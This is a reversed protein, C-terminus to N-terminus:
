ETHVRSCESLSHCSTCIISINELFNINYCFARTKGSCGCVDSVTHFPAHKSCVSPPRGAGTHCPHQFPRVEPCGLEDTGPCRRSGWRHGSDVWAGEWACGLGAAPCKKRRGARRCVDRHQLPGAGFGRHPAAEHLARPRQNRSDSSELCLESFFWSKPLVCLKVRDSGRPFLVFRM